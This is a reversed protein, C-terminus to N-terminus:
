RWKSMVLTVLHFKVESIGWLYLMVVFVPMEMLCWGVKNNIAPGWKETRMKGYGADVFYLAVFVVLGILSLVFLFNYFSDLTSIEM